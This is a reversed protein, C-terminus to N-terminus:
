GREVGHLVMSVLAEMADIPSGLDTGEFFRFLLAEVAGVVALATVNPPLDRLLGHTHAARTLDVARRAVDDAFRRVPARAGLPPARCELLYLRVLDAHPLLESTLERGLAGYAEQLEAETRARSLADLAHAMVTRVSRELPALIAEVLASKDDFYRYFSGKAIGAARTIEDITVAEIGSALFLRLAAECLTRAREKRNLDRKSGDQGPRAAPRKV